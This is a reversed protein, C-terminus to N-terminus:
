SGVKRISMRRRLSPYSAGCTPCCQIIKPQVQKRTVHHEKKLDHSDRTKALNETRVGRSKEVRFLVWMCTIIGWRGRDEGEVGWVGFRLLGWWSRVWGFVVFIGELANLHGQACPISRRRSFRLSVRPFWKRILWRLRRASWRLIRSRTLLLSLIIM